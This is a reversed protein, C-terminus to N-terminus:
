EENDVKARAGKVDITSIKEERADNENEDLTATAETTFPAVHPPMTTATTTATNSGNAAEDVDMVAEDRHMLIQTESAKLLGVVRDEPSTAPSTRNGKAQGASSAKPTTTASNLQQSGGSDSVGSSSPSQVYTVSRHATQPKSPKPVEPKTEVSQLGSRTINQGIFKVSAITEM